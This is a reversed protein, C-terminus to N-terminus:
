DYYADPAKKMANYQELDHGFWLEANRAEAMDIIDRMTSKYGEIDYPAYGPFNDGGPDM